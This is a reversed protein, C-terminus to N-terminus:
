WYPPCVIGCFPRCNMLLSHLNCSTFCAYLYSIAKCEPTSQQRQPRPSPSVADTWAFAWLSEASVRVECHCPSKHKTTLM